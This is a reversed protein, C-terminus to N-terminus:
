VFFTNSDIIKGEVELKGNVIKVKEENGPFKKKLEKMKIRLRGTEQVYVPHTDKKLYIKKWEPISKLTSAKEIIDDRIQKTGTNVKIMREAGQKPKGIRSYEFEETDIESCGIVELILDVKEKDDSLVIEDGHDNKTTIETESIGSVMINTSRKDFDIMNIAKQMNVIIGTLTDIKESKSEIEKELIRVRKELPDIDHQVKAIGTEVDTLRHNIPDTKEKILDLLKRVSIEAVSKDLLDDDIAAADDNTAQNGKNANDKCKNCFGGKNLRVKSDEKCASCKAM